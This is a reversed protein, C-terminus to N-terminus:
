ASPSPERVSLWSGMLGALTGGFILLAIKQAPLFGTFLFGWVLTSSPLLTRRTLEFAGYLVAVAVIGGITGHLLGEIFFPGRIIRETAGVLRMIEIEERYLMMTLRIVNAITFAAAIGLIGGAAFGALNVLNVIKELQDVWEWDFQVQDVGPMRRLQSMRDFFEKSRSARPDVDIEFSPPFPNEELHAVVDSLGTFHNRFRALAEEKTVFRRKELGPQAALFANVSRVQEPTAHVDLYVNVRSRGQWRQMARSLNESVILFGGLTFLSVAIMAIAVFSTRRSVWMRRLAERFFFVLTGSPVGPEQDPPVAARAM